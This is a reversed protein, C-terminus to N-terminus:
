YIIIFFTGKKWKGWKNKDVITSKNITCASSVNNRQTKTQKFTQKNTQKQKKNGRYQTM